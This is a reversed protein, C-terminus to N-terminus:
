QRYKYIATSSFTRVWVASRASPEFSCLRGELGGGGRNERSNSRLHHLKLSRANLTQMYNRCKNRDWFLRLQRNTDWVENCDQNCTRLTTEPHTESRQRLHMSIFPRQAERHSRRSCVRCLRSIQCLERRNTQVNGVRRPCRYCIPDPKCWRQLRQWRCQQLNHPALERESSTLRSQLFGKGVVATNRTETTIWNWRWCFM